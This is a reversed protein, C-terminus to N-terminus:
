LDKFLNKWGPNMAEITHIKWCRRKSNIVREHRQASELTAHLEFWVLSQKATAIQQRVSNSSRALLDCTVGTVLKGRTKTALLYVCPQSKM